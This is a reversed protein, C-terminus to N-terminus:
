SIDLKQKKAPSSVASVREEEGDEDSDEDYDVLSQLAQVPCCHCVCATVTASSLKFQM